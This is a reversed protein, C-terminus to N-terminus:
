RDMRKFEAKWRDKNTHGECLAGGGENRCEIHLPMYASGSQACKAKEADIILRGGDMRARAAGACQDGKLVILQEGKGNEDFCFKVSLEEGTRSNVLGTECLWCGKLFALKGTVAADEPIVIPAEKKANQPESPCAAMRDALMAKLKEAESRLAAEREQEQRIQAGLGTPRTAQGSCGPGSGSPTFACGSGGGATYSACGSGFGPLSLGGSCRMLVGLLSLFALLPILWGWRFKFRKRPRREPVPPPLPPPADESKAPEPSSPIKGARVLNEAPTEAGGKLRGQRAIPDYAELAAQDGGRVLDEPKAGSTGHTLGWCVIVPQDGVAYLSDADPYQMALELIRGSLARHKDPSQALEAALAKIGSTLENLRRRVEAQRAHPLDALKQVPGELRSYWDIEDQGSDALPEALLAAHAESLSSSLLSLLQQYRETAFIGQYSLPRLPGRRTSVIFQGAM